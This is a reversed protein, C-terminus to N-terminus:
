TSFFTLFYASLTNHRYLCINGGCSFLLRLFFINRIFCSALWKIRDWPHNYFSSYL